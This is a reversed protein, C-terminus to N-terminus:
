PILLLPHGRNTSSAVIYDAGHLWAGRSKRRIFLLPFPSKHLNAFGYFDLSNLSNEKQCSFNSGHQSNILGSSPVQQNTTCERLCDMMTRQQTGPSYGEKTWKQGLIETIKDITWDIQNIGGFLARFHTTKKETIWKSINRKGNEGLDMKWMDLGMTRLRDGGFACM